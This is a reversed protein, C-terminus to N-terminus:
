QPRCANSRAKPRHTAITPGSTNPRRHTSRTARTKSYRLMHKPFDCTPPRFSRCPAFQRLTASSARIEERATPEDLTDFPRHTQGHCGVEHGQDVLQKVIAPYRQAVDGTIFFTSRVGEEALLGMLRPMGEEIGRYTTLFPPCDHEVDVTFCVKM